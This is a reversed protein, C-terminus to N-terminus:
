GTTTAYNTPRNTPQDSKVKGCDDLIQGLMRRSIDEMKKVIENLIKNTLSRDLKHRGSAGALALVLRHPCQVHVSPM